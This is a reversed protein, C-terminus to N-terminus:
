KTVPVYPVIFCQSIIATDTLPAETSVKQAGKIGKSTVYGIASGDSYCKTVIELATEIQTKMDQFVTGYLQSAALSDRGATTADVGLVPLALATGDGDTDNMPSNKSDIFGNDIFAEVAGLAMDDNQCVVANLNKVGNKKLWLNMSEKASGRNWNAGFQTLFNVKYGKSEMAEVFGARRPIQAPHGYEGNFYLVNVTKGSLKDPHKSFYNHLIEAQYAGAETEPSSSYYCNKSIKLADITPMVNVFVVYGGQSNVIKAIQETLDSSAATIVFGKVGNMLMTKLQDIQIAPDNDSAYIELSLNKEEAIDTFYKKFDIWFSEDESKLLVGIKESNAGASKSNCSLLVNMGLILFVALIFFRIKTFNKM